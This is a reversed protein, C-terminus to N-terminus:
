LLLGVLLAAIACGAIAALWGWQVSPAFGDSTARRRLAMFLAGFAALPVLYFLVEMSSM